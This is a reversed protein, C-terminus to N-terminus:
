DEWPGFGPINIERERFSGEKAKSHCAACNSLSGVQKNDKVMRAPIDDHEKAFYPVETIRLPVAGKKLSAAMKKSRPYSSKDAANAELYASLTKATDAPLEANEGFHDALGGMLKKWSAAPLFGPQYAFHCVGCEDTYLQNTVPAVDLKGKGSRDDDDAVVTAAVGIVVVALVSTWSKGYM